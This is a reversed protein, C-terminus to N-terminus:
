DVHTKMTTYEALYRMKQKVSSLLCYPKKVVHPHSFISQAKINPHVIGKLPLVRSFIFMLHLNANFVTHTCLNYM